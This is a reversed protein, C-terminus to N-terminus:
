CLVLGERRGPPGRWGRGRQLGAGEGESQIGADAKSVRCWLAKALHISLHVFSLTVAHPQKQIGIHKFPLSAWHTGCTEVSRRAQAPCRAAALPCLWPCSLLTTDQDESCGFSGVSVSSEPAGATRARCGPCKPWPCGPGSRVSYPLLLAPLRNAPPGAARWAPRTEEERDRGSRELITRLSRHGRKRLNGQERSHGHLGSIFCVSTATLQPFAPGKRIFLSLPPRCRSGGGRRRGEAFVHARALRRSGPGGVSPLPYCALSPDAVCPVQPRPSLVM